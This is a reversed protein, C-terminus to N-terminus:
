SEIKRAVIFYNRGLVRGWFKPGTLMFFARSFRLLYNFVFGRFGRSLVKGTSGEINMRTGFLWTHAVVYHPQTPIFEMLELGAATLLGRLSPEDFVNLHGHTENKMYSPNIWAMWRESHKTPVTIIMRGNPSLLKALAGLVDPANSLHELLEQCHIVDYTGTVSSIGEIDLAVLLSSSHMNVKSCEETQWALVSPDCDVFTIQTAGTTEAVTRSFNAYGPGVDLVNEANLGRLHKRILEEIM